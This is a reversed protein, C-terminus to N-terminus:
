TPSLLRATMRSYNRMYTPLLLRLSFFLLRRATPTILPFSCPSNSLITISSPVASLIVGFHRLGAVTQALM